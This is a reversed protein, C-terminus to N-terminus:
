SEAGGERLDPLLPKVQGTDYAIAIQPKITEGVLKGDPLVIHALFEDEFCTIGTEVAELKAKIVLYLARWRQRCAQEWAKLAQEPARKYPVSGRHYVKFDTSEKDPLPLNFRVQRNEITFGIIARGPQTFSLFQDAGYREVCAEIEARTKIVPVETKAAYRSM